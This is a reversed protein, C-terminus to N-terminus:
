PGPPSRYYALAEERLGKADLLHEIAERVCGRGGPVECVYDSADKVEKVADAPCMAYGVRTLMPLDIWDDGMAATEALSLGLKKLLDDLVRGKDKVNQYLHEIKLEGARARVSGSERGTIIAVQFGLRLWASIILGDKIDYRKFERGEHDLNISGDTLCGDVDLVILKVVAPNKTSDTPM